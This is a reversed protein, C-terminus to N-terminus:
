YYDGFQQPNAAYGAPRGRSYQGSRFPPGRGRRGRFNGRRQMREAGGLNGFTPQQYSLNNSSSNLQNHASPPADFTAFANPQPAMQQPQMAQQPRNKAAERQAELREMEATAKVQLQKREEEGQYKAILENGDAALKIKNENLQIKMTQLYYKLSQQQANVLAQKLQEQKVSRKDDPWVNWAPIAQILPLKQEPILERPAKYDAPLKFEPNMIDAPIKNELRIIKNRTFLMGGLTMADQDRQGSTAQSAAPISAFALSNVFSKLMQGYPSTSSPEQSLNANNVLNDKTPLEFSFNLKCFPDASTCEMSNNAMNRKPITFKLAQFPSDLVMTTNANELEDFNLKRPTLLQDHDTVKAAQDAQKHSSRSASSRKQIRPTLQKKQLEQEQEDPSPYDTPVHDPNFVATPGNEEIDKSPWPSFRGPRGHITDTDSYATKQPSISPDKIHSVTPSSAPQKPPYVHSPRSIKLPPPMAADGDLGRKRGSGPEKSVLTAEGLSIKKSNALEQAKTIMVQAMEDFYEEVFSHFQAVLEKHLRSWPICYETHFKPETMPNVHKMFAHRLSSNTRGPERYQIPFWDWFYDQSYGWHLKRDELYKFLSSM